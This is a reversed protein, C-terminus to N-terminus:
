IHPKTRLQTCLAFYIKLSNHCCSSNTAKQSGVPVPSLYKQAPSVEVFLYHQNLRSSAELYLQCVPYGRVYEGSQVFVQDLHGHPESFAFSNFLLVRLKLSIKLSKFLFVFQFRNHVHDITEFSLVCYLYDPVKNIM